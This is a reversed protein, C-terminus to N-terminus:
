GYRCTLLRNKLILEKIIKADQEDTSPRGPRELDDVCERDEEFNKYWKNVKGAVYDFLM